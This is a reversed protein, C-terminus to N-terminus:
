SGKSGIIDFMRLSAQINDHMRSCAQSTHVEKHCEM